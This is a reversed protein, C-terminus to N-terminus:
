PAPPITTLIEDDVMSAYDQRMQKREQERRKKDREAKFAEFEQREEATMEVQEKESM